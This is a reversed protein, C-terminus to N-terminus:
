LFSPHLHLLFAEESWELCPALPPLFQGLLPRVGRQVLPVSLFPNRDLRCEIMVLTSVVVFFASGFSRYHEKFIILINWVGM